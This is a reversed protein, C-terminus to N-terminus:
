MAISNVEKLFSNRIREWKIESIDKLSFAEILTNKLETLRSQADDSDVKIAISHSNVVGSMDNFDMDKTLLSFYNSRLVWAAGMENMSVTSSYYRPSHVFLVYLDHELFLSKLKDFINESLPIGYGDVSSCFLNNEDFGMLELLKVLAEVFVKDKSSHSIFVMPSKKMGNQKKGINDVQSMMLNYISYLNRFNHNLTYGNGGNSINKFKVFDANSNTYYKGLYIVAACHWEQYAATAVNSNPNESAARKYANELSRVKEEESLCTMDDDEEFNDPLIDEDFSDLLSKDIGAIILDEKIQEISLTEKKEEAYANLMGKILNVLSKYDRKEYLNNMILILTSCANSEDINGYCIVYRYENEVVKNVKGWTDVMDIKVLWRKFATSLFFAAGVIKILDEYLPALKANPEIKM